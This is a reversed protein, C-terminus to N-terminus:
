VACRIIFRFFKESHRSFVHKYIFRVNLFENPLYIDTENINSVTYLTRNPCNNQFPIRVILIKRLGCNRCNRWSIKQVNSPGFYLQLRFNIPIGAMKAIPHGNKDKFIIKLRLM